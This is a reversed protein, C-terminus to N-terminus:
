EARGHRQRFNAPMQERIPTARGTYYLGGDGTKKADPHNKLVRPPLVPLPQGQGFSWPLKKYLAYHERKLWGATWHRMYMYLNNRGANGLRNLMKHFHQHRLYLRHAKTALREAFEDPLRVQLFREAEQVVSEAIADPMLLTVRELATPLSARWAGSEKGLAATDSRGAAAPPALSSVLRKTRNRRRSAPVSAGGRSPTSRSTSRM